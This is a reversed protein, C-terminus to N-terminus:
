QSPLSLAYIETPIKKNNNKDKRSKHMNRLVRPSFTQKFMPHPKELLIIVVLSLLSVCMQRM